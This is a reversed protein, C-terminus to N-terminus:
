CFADAFSTISRQVVTEIVGPLYCDHMESRPLPTKRQLLLGRTYGWSFDYCTTM